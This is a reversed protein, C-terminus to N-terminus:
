TSTSLNSLNQSLNELSEKMTDIKVNDSRMRKRAKEAQNLWNIKIIVFILVLLQFAVGVYEGLWLGAIGLENYFAFLCALPVSLLYYSAIAIM